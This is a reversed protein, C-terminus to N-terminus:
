AIWAEFEAIVKEATGWFGKGGAAEIESLRRWQIPTPACGPRKAEIAFMQGARARHCGIIDSTGSSGFGGTRPKHYWVLPGGEDLYAYIAKKEHWEPTHM